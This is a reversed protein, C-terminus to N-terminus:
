GGYRISDKGYTREPKQLALNTDTADTSCESCVGCLDVYKYKSCIRCIGKERDMLNEKM